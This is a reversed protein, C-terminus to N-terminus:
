SPERHLMEGKVPPSVLAKIRNFIATEIEGSEVIMRGLNLLTGAIEEKIEQAVRGDISIKIPGAQIEGIPFSHNNSM